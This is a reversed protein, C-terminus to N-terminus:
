KVRWFEPNMMWSETELQKETKVEAPTNKWVSEDSMWSELALPKEIEPSISVSKETVWYASDLMWNEIVLSPDTAQEKIFQNKLENGEATVNGCLFVTAFLTAFLIQSFRTKMAKKNNGTTKLKEAKTKM